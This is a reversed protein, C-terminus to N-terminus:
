DVRRFLKADFPGLGIDVREYHARLYQLVPDDRRLLLTQAVVYPIRRAELAALAEEYHSPRYFGQQLWQHPTPNAAGSFLYLEACAPYCFLEGAGAERLRRGVAELLTIQAPDRFAVTGFATEHRLPFERRRREANRGIKLALAALLLAAAVAGIRGRWPEALARVGIEVGLAALVAFLPAIFALHAIGPYNLISVISLLAFVALIVLRRLEAREARRWWCWLARPALPLLALPGYKLAPPFTYVNIRATVHSYGWVTTHGPFNRYDVLPFVVLADFVRGAGAAAVLLALVPGAVLALAGLHCALQALLSAPVVRFRRRILRDLVFLFCIGAAFLVGKHQLVLLLLASLAGLGAAWAPREDWPARLAVLLLAMTLLTGIWHPSVFPWV